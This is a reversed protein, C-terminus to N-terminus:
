VKLEKNQMRLMKGNKKKKGLCQMFDSRNWLNFSPQKYTSPWGGSAKVM